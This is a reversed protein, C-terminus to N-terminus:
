LLKEKPLKDLQDRWKCTTMRLGQLLSSSEPQPWLSYWQKLAVTTSQMWTTTQSLTFPLSMTVLTLMGATKQKQDQISLQTLM